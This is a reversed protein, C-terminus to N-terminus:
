EFIIFAEIDKDLYDFQLFLTLSAFCEAIQLALLM